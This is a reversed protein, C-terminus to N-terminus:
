RGTEAAARHVLSERAPLVRRFQGFSRSPPANARAPMASHDIYDAAVIEFVVATNRKNFGQDFLRRTLAKNEESSMIIEGKKIAFIGRVQSAMVQAFRGL